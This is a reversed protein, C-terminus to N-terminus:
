NLEGNLRKQLIHVVYNEFGQEDELYYWVHGLNERTKVGDITTGIQLSIATVQYAVAIERNETAQVNLHEYTLKGSKLEDAFYKNITSKTLEGLKICSYCETNGHFTFAEVSVNKSGANLPASSYLVTEQKDSKQVAVKEDQGTCGFSFIMLGVFLIAFIINLNKM